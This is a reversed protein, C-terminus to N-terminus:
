DHLSLPGAVPTRPLSSLRRGTRVSPVLPLGRTWSLPLIGHLSGAEDECALCALGQGFERQLVSLWAPHHYILGDPHNVVFREWRPDQVPDIDVVRLAGIYPAYPEVMSRTRCLQDNKQELMDDRM